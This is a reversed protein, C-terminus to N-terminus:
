FGGNCTAQPESRGRANGRRLNDCSECLNITYLEGTDEVMGSAIDFYYFGKKWCQRDCMFKPEHWGASSSVAIPVFSLEEKNEDMDMDFLQCSEYEQADTREKGCWQRGRKQSGGASSM